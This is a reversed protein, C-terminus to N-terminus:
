LSAHDNDDDDDDDRDDDYESPQPEAARRAAEEERLRRQEAAQVLRPEVDVEDFKNVTLFRIVDDINRVRRELEKVLESPSLFNVLFYHGKQHKDIPYALKRKGWDDRTLLHGGNETIVAELKTVIDYIPADDMDPRIILVLEYENQFM